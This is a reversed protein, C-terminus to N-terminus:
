APGLSVAEGPYEGEDGEFMKVVEDSSPRDKADYRCCRTIIRRVDRPLRDLDALPVSEGHREMTDELHRAIEDMPTGIFPKDTYHATTVSLEWLTIGLAWVDAPTQYKGGSQAEPATWRRPIMVDGSPDYVHVRAMGFDIM